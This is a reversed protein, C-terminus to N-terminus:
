RALRVSPSAPTSRRRTSSRTDSCFGRKRPPLSQIVRIDTKQEL